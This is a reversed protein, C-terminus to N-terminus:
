VFYVVLPHELSVFPGLCASQDVSRGVFDVLGPSVVQRRQKLGRVVPCRVLWLRLLHRLRLLVSHPWVDTNAAIQTDRDADHAVALAFQYVFGVLFVRLVYIVCHYLHGYVLVRQGLGVLQGHWHEGGLRVCHDHLVLLLLQLCQAVLQMEVFFEYLSVLGLQTRRLDLLVPDVSVVLLELRLVQGRGQCGGLSHHAPVQPLM